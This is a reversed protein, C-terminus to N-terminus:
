EKLGGLALQGLICPLQFMVTLHTDQICYRITDIYDILLTIDLVDIRHDLPQESVRHEDELEAVSDVVIGAPLEAHEGRVRQQIRLAENLNRQSVLEEEVLWEGFFLDSKKQKKETKIKMVEM